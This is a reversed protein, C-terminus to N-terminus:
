QYEPMLFCIVALQKTGSFIWFHVPLHIKHYSIYKRFYLPFYITTHLYILLLNHPYIQVSSPLWRYSSCLPTLDDLIEETISCCLNWISKKSIIWPLQLLLWNILHNTVRRMDFKKLGFHVQAIPNCVLEVLKNWRCFFMFNEVNVLRCYNLCYNYKPFMQDLM